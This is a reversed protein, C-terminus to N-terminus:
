ATSASVSCNHPVGDRNVRWWSYVTEDTFSSGSRARKEDGDESTAIHQRLDTAGVKELRARGSKKGDSKKNAKPIVETDKRERRSSRRTGRKAKDSSKDTTRDIAKSFSENESRSRNSDHVRTKEPPTPQQKSHKRVAEKPTAYLKAATENSPVVVRRLSPAKRLTSTRKEMLDRTTLKQVSRARRTTSRKDKGTSVSGKLHRDSSSRRSNPRTTKRDSSSRSAKSENEHKGNRISQTRTSAIRIGSSVSKCALSDEQDRLLNPASAWLIDDSASHLRTDSEHAETHTYGLSNASAGQKYNDNSTGEELICTAGLLTPSSAWLIDDDNSTSTEFPAAGLLNPDSAWLKNNLSIELGTEFADVMTSLRKSANHRGICKDRKTHKQQDFEKEVVDPESDSFELLCDQQVGKTRYLGPASGSSYGLTPVGASKSRSVRNKRQGTSSSSHREIETTTKHRQVKSKSSSKKNSMKSLDPDSTAEGLPTRRRTDLGVKSGSTDRKNRSISRRASKRLNAKEIDRSQRKKTSKRAKQKPADEGQLHKDLMLKYKDLKSRGESARRPFSVSARDEQPEEYGRACFSERSELLRWNLSHRYHINMYKGYLRKPTNDEDSSGSTNSSKDSSDMTTTCTSCSSNNDKGDDSPAPVSPKEQQETATSEIRIDKPMEELAIQNLRDM